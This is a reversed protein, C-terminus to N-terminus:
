KKDEGWIIDKGGVIKVDEGKNSKTVRISKDDLIFEKTSDETLHNILDKAITVMPDDKEAGSIRQLIVLMGATVSGILGSIVALQSEGLTQASYILAGVMLTIAPLSLISVIHMAKDKLIRQQILRQQQKKRIEKENM